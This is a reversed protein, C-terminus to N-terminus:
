DAQWGEGQIGAVEDSSDRLSGGLAQGEEIGVQGSQSADDVRNVDVDKGVSVVHLKNEEEHVLRGAGQVLESFVHCVDGVPHLGVVQVQACCCSTTIKPFLM